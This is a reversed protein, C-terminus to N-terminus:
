TTVEAEGFERAIGFLVDGVYTAYTPDVWLQVAPVAGPRPLLAASVRAFETLHLRREALDLPIAVLEALLEPVRKGVVLLSGDERPYALCSTRSFGSAAAGEVWFETRGTRAVFSGADLEVPIFWQEPVPFGSESLADTSTKGKLTTRPVNSVDVFALEDNPASAGHAAADTGGDRPAGTYHRQFLPAFPSTRLASV